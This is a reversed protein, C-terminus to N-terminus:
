GSAVIQLADDRVLTVEAGPPVTGLSREDATVTVDVDREVTVSIALLPVVWHDPDTSFPAVPVVAAADTGQAVVPGGAARAYGGSGAPTAVAVGDARFRAIHDLSDIGETAASVSFGAITAPEASTLVVDFVAHGDAAPTEVAFTPRPRVDYQGALVREITTEIGDASRDFGTEVTLVPVSTGTAALTALARDGVAVVVDAEVATPGTLANGGAETVANVVGDAERDPAVVGVSPRGDEGERGSTTM